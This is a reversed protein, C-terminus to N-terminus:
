ARAMGDILRWCDLVVPAEKEESHNESNCGTGVYELVM